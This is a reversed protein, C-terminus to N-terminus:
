ENTGRNKSCYESTKNECIQVAVGVETGVAIAPQIAIAGNDHFTGNFKGGLIPVAAGAIAVSKTSTGPTLTGTAINADIYTSSGLRAGFQVCSSTVACTQGTTDRAIGGSQNFGVGSVAEGGVGVTFTAGETMRKAVSDLYAVEEKTYSNTTRAGSININSAKTTNNYRELASQLDTPAQVGTARPVSSTQQNGVIRNNNWTYHYSAFDGKGAHSQIYRVLDPDVKPINLSIGTGHNNWQVGVLTDYGLDPRGSPVTNNSDASEYFDGKRFNAARLANAIQERTWKKNGGQRKYLEEIVWSEGMNAHLQRNNVDVNVAMATSTTDVGASQTTAAIALSVILNATVEANDSSVGQDILKQAVKESIEHITPAAAAVSGTTFAGEVTGTGLAGVATHLAVRYVGGEEWKQAEDLIAKAEEHTLNPNNLQELYKDRRSESFDAVAKPANQGFDKTVAVQTNLERQM